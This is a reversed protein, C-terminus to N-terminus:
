KKGNRGKQFIDICVMKLPIIRHAKIIKASLKYLTGKYLNIILNNRKQKQSYIGNQWTICTLTLCKFWIFLDFMCTCTQIGCSPVLTGHMLLGVNLALASLCIKCICLWCLMNCTFQYYYLGSATAACGYPKICCCVSIVLLHEWAHFVCRSKAYVDTVYMYRHFGLSTNICSLVHFRIPLFFIYSHHLCLLTNNLYM